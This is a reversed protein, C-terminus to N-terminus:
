SITIFAGCAAFATALMAIPPLIALCFVAPWSFRFESRLLALWAAFILLVAPNSFLAAAGMCFASAAMNIFFALWYPLRPKEPVPIPEPKDM